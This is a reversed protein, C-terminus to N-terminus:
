FFGYFTNVKKFSHAIIFEYRLVPSDKQRNKKRKSNEGEEASPNEMGRVADQAIYTVEAIVPFFPNTGIYM